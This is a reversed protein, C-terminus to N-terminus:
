PFSREVKGKTLELTYFRNGFQSPHILTQFQSIERASPSQLLWEKGCYTLFRSQNLAPHVKLGLQGAAEEFASFNVDATLDQEGPSDLPHVKTQHNRYCRLTGATRAPHLLSDADLGYDIWLHLGREFIREFPALFSTFDPTGEALYGDPLTRPLPPGAERLDWELRNSKETVFVEHWGCGTKLFLPVPLADLVENAVLVGITARCEDPSSVIRARDGLRKELLARRLPLPESIVYDISRAFDPHHARAAALVDLALSGDHAGPEFITFTSPSGNAEWFRHFRRALLLGFVPGVSVSTMFDGAKSVTAAQDRAYYGLKPDYLCRAMYDSFSIPGNERISEIIGRGLDTIAGSTSRPYPFAQQLAAFDAPDQSM